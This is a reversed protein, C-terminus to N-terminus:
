SDLQESAGKKRSELWAEYRARDAKALNLERFISYKPWEGTEELIQQKIKKTYEVYNFHLYIPLEINERSISVLEESFDTNDILWKLHKNKKALSMLFSYDSFRLKTTPLIDAVIIFPMTKYKTQLSPKYKIYYCFNTNKIDGELSTPYENEKIPINNINVSGRSSLREFQRDEAVARKALDGLM